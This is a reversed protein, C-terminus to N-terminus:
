HCSLIFVFAFSGNTKSDFIDIIVFIPKLYFYFNSFLFKQFILESYKLFQFILSYTNNMYVAVEVKGRKIKMNSIM